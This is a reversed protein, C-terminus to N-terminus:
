LKNLIIDVSKNIETDIVQNINRRRNKIAKDIFNIRSKDFKGNKTPMGQKSHTYAIAYAIGKIVTDSGAVGKRGLWEILANIRAKARPYKIQSAKVGKDLFTWYYNGFISVQNPAEPEIKLSKILGGARPERGQKVLEIGFAKAYENGIARLIKNTIIM